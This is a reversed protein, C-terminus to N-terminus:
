PKTVEVVNGNACQIITEADSEMWIPDSFSALIGAEIERM